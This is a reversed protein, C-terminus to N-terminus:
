QYEVLHYKAWEELLGEHAAPSLLYKEQSVEKLAKQTLTYMTIAASVSVNLSEVLGVMPITFSYDLHKQWDPHLGAHENSFVVAIKDTVPIEQLPRSGPLVSAAAIKYGQKKLNQAAEDVSHHKHIHIWRDVGRTVTSPEFKEKMLVIHVDLIGFAEASRLCASVNHPHHIDQVILTIHQTRAKAARELRMIRNESM